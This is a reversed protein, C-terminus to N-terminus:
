VTAHLRAGLYSELDPGGSRTLVHDLWAQREFGQLYIEWTCVSNHDVPPALFLNPKDDHTIYVAHLLENDNVWRDLLLQTLGRGEHVCMFGVGYHHHKTPHNKLHQRVTEKGAQLLGAAPLSSSHAIGYVKLRWEGAELVEVFNIERKAYPAFQRGTTAV